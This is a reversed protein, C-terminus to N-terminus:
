LGGSVLKADEEELNLNEESSLVKEFLNQLPLHDLKQWYLELMRWGPEAHLLLYTNSPDKSLSYAGLTVSIALRVAVLIRLVSVEAELLKVKEAFGQLLSMIALIPKGQDKGLPSLMVYALAIAIENCRWSFVSDGFDIVGIIQVNQVVTCTYM